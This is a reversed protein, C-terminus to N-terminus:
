GWYRRFGEKHWRVVTEPRVFILPKRWDNWLRSLIVWLLRDRNRIHPKKANRKLVELQHRLALNELALARHSRLASILTRLLLLLM